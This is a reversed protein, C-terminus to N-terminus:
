RRRLDAPCKTAGKPAGCGRGFVPPVKPTRGLNGPGVEPIPGSTITTPKPEEDYRPRLRPGLRSAESPRTM